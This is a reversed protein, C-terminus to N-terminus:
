METISTEIKYMKTEILGFRCVNIIKSVFHYKLSEKQNICMKKQSRILTKFQTPRYLM